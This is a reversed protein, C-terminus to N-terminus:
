RISINCFDAGIWGLRSELVEDNVIDTDSEDLSAHENKIKNM